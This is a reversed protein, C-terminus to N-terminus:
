GRKKSAYMVKDARDVLSEATDGEKILAVGASASINIDGRAYSTFRRKKMNKRFM